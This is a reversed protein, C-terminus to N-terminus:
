GNQRQVVERVAAVVDEIDEDTMKPYLPLSLMRQYERYAIPFDEPRFGYRQRYYPHLHVPIFHVSSGINRARLEEIFRDRVEEASGGERFWRFRETKLRVVYLHFSHEIEPRVAPRDLLDLDAFAQQYSEFIQRRRAQLEPMRKLQQLGLAAQIDTMNYKFGPRMIEYRWSGAATYRMWADRSMGHLSWLRAEEVLPRSGALLGGEGTTLNKTAYFSFCIAHQPLETAAGIRVGRYAAALAHAADEILALEHDRAIRSVAELDCPHGHLHVPLIARARIGEAVPQQLAQEVRGADLNMTGAEVDVLLPRAGVQEIVHITSCFTLPTTIVAHGPGIGLAALAVHMAATGSNVALTSEAGLYQAMEQEFRSVRPGTTIWGSRLTAAVEAIEKEGVDPLHFALFTKRGPKARGGRRTPIAAPPQGKM